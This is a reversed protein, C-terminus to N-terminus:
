APVQIFHFYCTDTVATTASNAANTQLQVSLTVTPDLVLGQTIKVRGSVQANVTSLILNEGQTIGNLQVVLQGDVSPTGSVYIDVLQYRSGAPVQFTTATTPNNFGFPYLTGNTLYGSAQSAPISFTIPVVRDQSGTVSTQATTMQAM